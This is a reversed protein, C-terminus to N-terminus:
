HTLKCLFVPKVHKTFRYPGTVSRSFISCFVVVHIRGPEKCESLCRDCRNVCSSKDPSSKFKNSRVLYGRFGECISNM